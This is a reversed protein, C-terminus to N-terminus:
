SRSAPRATEPPIGHRPPPAAPRPALALRHRPLRDPPATAPPAPPTSPATRRPVNALMQGMGRRADRSEDIRKDVFADVYGPLDALSRAGELRAFEGFAVLLPVRRLVSRAGYGREALWVVYREIEPGIWLARVRDVTRPNVFYRELM